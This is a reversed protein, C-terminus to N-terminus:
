DFYPNEKREARFLDTDYLPRNQQQCPDYALRHNAYGGAVPIRCIKSQTAGHAHDEKRRFHKAKFRRFAERLEEKKREKQIEEDMNLNSTVPTEDQQRYLQRNQFVDSYDAKPSNDCFSPSTSTYLFSEPPSVYATSLENHQNASSRSGPKRVFSSYYGRAQNQNQHYSVPNVSHGPINM